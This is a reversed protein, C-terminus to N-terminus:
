KSFKGIPSTIFKFSLKSIKVNFINKGGIHHNINELEKRVVVPSFLNVHITNQHDEHVEIVKLSFYKANIFFIEFIFYKSSFNKKCAPCSTIYEQYSKKWGSFIEEPFLVRNCHPCSDDLSLIIKDFQSTFEEKKLLPKNQFPFPEKKEEMEEEENILILKKAVMKDKKQKLSRGIGVASIYAGHLNMSEIKEENM